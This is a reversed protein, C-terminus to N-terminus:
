GQDTFLFRLSEGEIAYKRYEAADHNHGYLVHQVYTVERLEIATVRALCKLRTSLACYWKSAYATDGDKRYQFGRYILTSTGQPSRRLEAVEMETLLPM